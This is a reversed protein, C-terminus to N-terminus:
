QLGRRVIDSHKQATNQALKSPHRQCTSGARKKHSKWTAKGILTHTYPRMPSRRLSRVLALLLVFLSCSWVYSHFAVFASICMAWPPVCTSRDLGNLRARRNTQALDQETQGCHLLMTLIYAHWTHTTCRSLTFLGVLCGTSWIVLYGAVWDIVYNNSWSPLWRDFWNALSNYIYIYINKEIHQAVLLWRFM